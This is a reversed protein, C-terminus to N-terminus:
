DPDSCPIRLMVDRRKKLKLKNPIRHVLTKVTSVRIGLQRAIQKNSLGRAVLRAVEAERDSLSAPLSRMAERSALTVEHLRRIVAALVAGAAAPRGQAAANIAEVLSFFSAGRDVCAMAGAQLYRDAQSKQVAVLLDLPDLAEGVVEIGEHRGLLDALTHRLIPSDLALLVRTPM